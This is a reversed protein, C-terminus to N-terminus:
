RKSFRYQDNGCLLMYVGAPWSAIDIWRVNDIVGEWVTRGLEDIITAEQAGSGSEIKLLSSSPNPYISLSRAPRMSHVSAPSAEVAGISRSESYRAGYLDNIPKEVSSGAARAPSNNSPRFSEDLQPDLNLIRNPEAAPTNPGSWSSNSPNFWLNNSFSFTEPATNSGINIAVQSSSTIVINNIFSNNGCPLFGEVSEQLIRIAWREPEIMTNNIVKSDIAGVFAVSAVAGSFLNSFVDIRRAEYNAGLPRFFELGTNGGINIARQGGRIFRNRTILIDSTGGKAQICNSGADQFSNDSFEGFHCGVMDILSGGAAGNSFKCNSVVFSDIGSMKLMDNNGTADISRWECNRIQIHHAPTAYTGGDDINVGNGSQGEFVLGEIIVFAPDSLQFAFSGGRIIAGMNGDGRIIIPAVPSGKLDLVHSGGAHVGSVYAITDGPQVDLAAASLSSFAQGPGISLTRAELASKSFCLLVLVLLLSRYHSLMAYRNFWAFISLSFRSNPKSMPSVEDFSRDYRM